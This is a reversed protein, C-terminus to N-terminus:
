AQRALRRAWWALSGVILLLGADQLLILPYSANREASGFCGCEVNIGRVWVSAIAGIFGVLMAGTLFLAGGYLVRFVIAVGCFIEL